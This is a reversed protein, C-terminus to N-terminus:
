KNDYSKVDLIENNKDNVNLKTTQQTHSENWKNKMVGKRM